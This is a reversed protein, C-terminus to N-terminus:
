PFTSLPVSCVKVAALVSDNAPPRQSAAKPQRWRSRRHPRSGYPQTAGLTLSFSPAGRRQWGALLLPAAYSPGGIKRAASAAEEPRSYGGGADALGSALLARYGIFLLAPWLLFNALLGGGVALFHPCAHAAAGRSPALWLPGVATGGGKASPAVHAVFTIYPAINNNRVMANPISNRIGAAAVLPPTGASAAAAFIAQTVSFWLTCGAAAGALRRQGGAFRIHHKASPALAIRHSIGRDSLLRYTHRRAAFASALIRESPISYLTRRQHAPQAATRSAARSRLGFDALIYAAASHPRALYARSDSFASTSDHVRSTHLSEGDSRHSDPVLRYGGYFTSATVLGGRHTWQTFRSRRRTLSRTCRSLHCLSCVFRPLPCCAM